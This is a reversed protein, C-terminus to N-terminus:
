RRASKRATGRKSMFAPSRSTGIRSIGGPSAGCRIACSGGQGACAVAGSRSHMSTFFLKPNRAPPMNRVPGPTRTVATPPTLM